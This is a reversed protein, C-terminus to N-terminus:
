GRPCCAPLGPAQRLSAAVSNFVKLDPASIEATCRITLDFHLILKMATEKHQLQLGRGDSGKPGTEM